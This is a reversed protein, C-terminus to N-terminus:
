EENEALLSLQLSDEFLHFTYALYAMKLGAPLYATALKQYVDKLSGTFVRLSIAYRKMNRTDKPLPYLVPKILTLAWIGTVHDIRSLDEAIFDGLFDPDVTHIFLSVDEHRARKTLYLLQGRDEISKQLEDLHAMVSDCISEKREQSHLRLISIM